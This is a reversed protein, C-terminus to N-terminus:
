HVSAGIRKAYQRVTNAGGAFDMKMFNYTKKKLNFRRSIKDRLSLTFTSILLLNM